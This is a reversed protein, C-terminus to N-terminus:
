FAMMHASIWSSNLLVLLIQIACVSCSIPAMIRVLTNQTSLALKGPGPSM